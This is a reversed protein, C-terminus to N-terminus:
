GYRELLRNVTDILKETTTTKVIFADAGVKKAMEEDDLSDSATLILVPIAKLKPDFKIMRCIKHGLRRDVLNIDSDDAGGMGPLALDLIILNPMIKRAMNLGELGDEVPIAEFGNLELRIKIMNLFAENDEIILIKKRSDITM